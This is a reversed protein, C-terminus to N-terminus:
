EVRLLNEMQMVIYPKWEDILQIFPKYGDEARRDSLNKTLFPFTLLGYFTFFVVNIPVQKIHGQAMEEELGSIVKSLVLKMPSQNIADLLHNINRHIEVVVFLPLNPNNLLIAYYTDVIRSVRKAISANSDLLIDYIKPVIQSIIMGFVAQFMKEKTRFYYHLTPRNIGAKVAIESMSTDTFGNEMFLSKATEIIKTEMDNRAAVPTNDQMKNM